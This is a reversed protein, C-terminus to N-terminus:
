KYGKLRTLATNIDTDQATLTNKHTYCILTFTTAKFLFCPFFLLSKSLGLHNEQIHKYINQTLYINPTTQITNIQKNQYQKPKITLSYSYLIKFYITIKPSNRYQKYQHIKYNTHKSTHLLHTHHM